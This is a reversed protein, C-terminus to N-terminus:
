EWFTGMAAVLAHIATGFIGSHKNKGIRFQAAMAEVLQDFDGRPNGNDSEVHAVGWWRLFFYVLLLSRQAICFLARENGAWVDTTDHCRPRHGIM